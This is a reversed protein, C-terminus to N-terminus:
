AYEDATEKGAQRIQEQLESVQRAINAPTNEPFIDIGVHPTCVTGTYVGLMSTDDRGSTFAAKRELCTQLGYSTTVALDAPSGIPAYAKIM